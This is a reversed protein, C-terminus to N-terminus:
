RNAKIMKGTYQGGETKVVYMYMGAPQSDINLTVKNEGFGYQTSPINQVVQGLMNYVEITAKTERSLNFVLSTSGNFPNPVVKIEQLPNELGSGISVGIPKTPCSPFNQNTYWGQVAKVDRLNKAWSTNLGNPSNPEHSYVIAYELKKEENPEFTYPGVSQLFRRDGKTNGANVENWTGTTYPTGSFAFNTPTGTQYGNGGETLPSGDRWVSRLYDYYHRALIPNGLISFDNRYSIFNSMKDSLMVVSLMPPNEGYGLIGEDDNDGNYVFAFSNQPDCGVYDDTYNGLDVDTWVGFYTSDYKNSSRNIIEYEYFTTYNLAENPSGKKISDCNYSYAMARVEVGLPLGQTESHINSADNFIWFLAQDGKIKPYDGKQPEYRGDNDVDIFPALNYTYSGQGHAPWTLVDDPIKYTGNQLIGNNYAKKLEEIDWRNIKWTKLFSSDGWNIPTNGTTDIPGPFFDFGSQRYTMAATHLKKGQDIGGMWIAASFIPSKCSNKPVEYRSSTHLDWFMDGHNLVLASVNNIDLSKTDTGVFEKIQNDDNTVKSVDDIIFMKSNNLGAWLQNKYPMNKVLLREAGSGFRDRDVFHKVMKNGTGLRMFSINYRSPRAGYEDMCIIIDGYNKEEELHFVRATANSLSSNVCDDLENAPTIVNNELVSLGFYAKGNKHASDTGLWLKKTSKKWLLAYVNNNVLGSNQRTYTTFTNSTSMKVVGGDTGFWVDGNDGKTLSYVKANPDGWLTGNYYTFDNNNMNLKGVGNDSCLWLYNGDRVLKNIKKELGKQTLSPHYNSANNFSSKSVRQLGEDTGLWVYLETVLISNISNTTLVSSMMQYSTAKIGDWKVIGYYKFCMWVDENTDFDVDTIPPSFTTNPFIDVETYGKQAKTFGLILFSFFITIITKKM